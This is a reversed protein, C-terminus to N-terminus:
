CFTVEVVVRVFRWTQPTQTPSSTVVTVVWVAIIRERLNLYPWRHKRSPSFLCPSPPGVDTSGGEGQQMARQEAETEGTFIAM